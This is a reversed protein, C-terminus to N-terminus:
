GNRESVCDIYNSWQEPRLLLDNNKKTLLTLMATNGVISVKTIHQPNLSIQQSLEAIVEGIADIVRRNM